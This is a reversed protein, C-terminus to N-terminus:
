ATPKCLRLDDLRLTTCLIGLSKGFRHFSTLMCSYFACGGEFFRLSAAQIMLRLGRGTSFFPLKLQCM